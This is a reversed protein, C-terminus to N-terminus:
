STSRFCKNKKLVLFLYKMNHLILFVNAVYINNKYENNPM